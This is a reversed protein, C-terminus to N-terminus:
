GATGDLNIAFQKIVVLQVDFNQRFLEPKFTSGIFIKNKLVAFNMQCFVFERKKRIKRM